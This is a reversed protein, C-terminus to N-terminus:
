KNVNITNEKGCDTRTDEVCIFTQTRQFLTNEKNFLVIKYRNKYLFISSNTILLRYTQWITTKDSINVSKLYCSISVENHLM